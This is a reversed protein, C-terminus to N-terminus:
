VTTDGKGLLGAPKLILILILVVFSVGGSVQANWITGGISEIIGMLVGGVMAGPISGIGGLIVAAFAKDGISEAMTPSVQSLYTTMMIASVAGLASGIFFTLSITSNVSVGMLGATDRDLSVARISMGQKTHRIFVQLGAMLTVSLVLIWLLVSSFGISGIHYMPTTTGISMRFPSTGFVIQLGTVLIYSFGVSVAIMSLKPANRIPKYGIREIIIGIIGGVLAGVICAPLYSMGVKAFSYWAVYAGVLAVAGHAFNLFLLTGYILCYGLALLAYILGLALGNILQQLLM